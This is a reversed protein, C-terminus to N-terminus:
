LFEQFNQKSTELEPMSIVGLIWGILQRKGRQHFISNLEWRTRLLLIQSDSLFPEQIFYYWIVSSNEFFLGTSCIHSRTDASFGEILGFESSFFFVLFQFFFPFALIRFGFAFLRDLIISFTLALM